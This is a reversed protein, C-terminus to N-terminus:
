IETTIRPLSRGVSYARAQPRHAAPIKGDSWSWARASPANHEVSAEFPQWCLHLPGILRTLPRGPDRSWVLCQIGRCGPCCFSCVPNKTLLLRVSGAASGQAAPTIQHNARYRFFAERWEKWKERVRADEKWHKSIDYVNQYIQQWNPCVHLM